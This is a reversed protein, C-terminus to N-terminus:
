LNIKFYKYNRLLSKEKFGLSKFLKISKINDSEVKCFLTTINLRLRCYDKFITLSEKAYGKMRYHKEIFIGVDATSDKLNFLDLIGIPKDKLSIILRLQKQININNLNSNLIFEELERKTFYTNEHGYRHNEHDNEINYLFNVDSKILQRLEIDKGILM